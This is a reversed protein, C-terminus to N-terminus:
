IISNELNTRSFTTLSKKWQNSNSLYSKALFEALESAGFTVKILKKSIKISAFTSKPTPVRLLQVPM